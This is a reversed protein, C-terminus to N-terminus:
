GPDIDLLGGAYADALDGIPYARDAAGPVTLRLLWDRIDGPPDSDPFDRGSADALCRPVGTIAEGSRPRYRVPLGRSEADLVAGISIIDRSTLGPRYPGSSAGDAAPGTRFYGAAREPTDDVSVLVQVPGPGFASEEATGALIHLRLIGPEAAVEAFVGGIRVCPRDDDHREARDAALQAPLFVATAPAEDARRQAAADPHPRQGPRTTM